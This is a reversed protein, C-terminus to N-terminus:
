STAPPRPNTPQAAALSALCLAQGAERAQAVNELQKSDLAQQLDALADEALKLTTATVGNQQDPKGSGCTAPSWPASSRRRSRQAARLLDKGEPLASLEKGAQELMEVARDLRERSDKSRGALAGGARDAGRSSSPLCLDAIEKRAPCTISSSKGEGVAREASELAAARKGLALQARSRLRLARVDGRSLNPDSAAESEAANGTASLGGGPQAASGPQRGAEAGRAPPDHRQRAANVADSSPVPPADKKATKDLTRSADKEEARAVEALALQELTRSLGIRARPLKDDQTRAESYFRRAKEFNGSAYAASGALALAPADGSALEAASPWHCCGPRLWPSGPAIRSQTMQQLRSEIM